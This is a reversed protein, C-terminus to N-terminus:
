RPEETGYYFHLTEPSIGLTGCCCPLDANLTSHLADLHPLRPAVPPVPSCRYDGGYSAASDSYTPPNHVPSLTRDESSVTECDTSRDEVAGSADNGLIASAPDSLVPDPTLTDPQASDTM